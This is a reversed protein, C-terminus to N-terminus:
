QPVIKPLIWEGGMYFFGTCGITACQKLEAACEEHYVVGCTCRLGQVWKDHCYVCKM